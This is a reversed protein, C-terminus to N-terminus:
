HTQYFLQLRPSSYRDALFSRCSMQVLIETFQMEEDDKNKKLERFGIRMRQWPTPNKRSM